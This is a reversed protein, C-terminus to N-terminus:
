KGSLYRRVFAAAAVGREAREGARDHKTRDARHGARDDAIGGSRRDRM